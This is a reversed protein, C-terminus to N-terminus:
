YPRHAIRTYVATPTVFFEEREAQFPLITAAGLGSFIYLFLASTVQFRAEAHFLLFVGTHGAMLILWSLPVVDLKGIKRAVLIGFVFLTIFALYCTHWVLALSRPLEVNWWASPRAWLAFFHRAMNYVQILKYNEINTLAAATLKRDVELMDRENRVVVITPHPRPVPMGEAADREERQARGPAQPLYEPDWYPGTIDLYEKTETILVPDSGAPRMGWHPPDPYTGFFLNFGGLPAHLVFAGYVVYNRAVWPAMVAIKTMVATACVSLRTLVRIHRAVLIPFLFPAFVLTAEPRTLGAAGWILGLGIATPLRASRYLQLSMLAALAIWFLYLTETLVQTCHVINSPSLAFLFAAALAARRGFVANALVFLLGCTTVSVFVQAVMLAVYRASTPVISWVAAIFLPYGPTRFSFEGLPTPSFGKGTLINQAIDPYGDGTVMNPHKWVWLNYVLRLTLCLLLILALTTWTKKDESM